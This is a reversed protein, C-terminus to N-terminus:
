VSLRNVDVEDSGNIESVLLDTRYNTPYELSTISEM